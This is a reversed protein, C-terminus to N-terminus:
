RRQAIRRRVLDQAWRWQMRRWEARSLRGGDNRTRMWDLLEGVPVFWGNRNALERLLREVGPEVVGDHTYRKGLHTAVICVGGGRELREQRDSALVRQFDAVNDADTASFWWRVLPRRPDHYPMTPNIRLLDVEEFTLNRVYEVHQAVRDGWWFPSGEVQGQFYDAPRGNVRRYLASLIPQDIRDPGWYVNERNASHNAHVRPYAGFVERFRELATLTRERRSSEMTAGHFAIEFGQAQLGLVFRRYDPDELTDSDTFDRSGEPCDVPWVTKTTRMGLEALLRYIPEVNAVTAVDTDDIISFAFSKGDPWDFPTM